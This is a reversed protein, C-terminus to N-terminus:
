GWPPLVLLGALASAANAVVSVLLSSKYGTGVILHYILAEVGVATIEGLFVSHGYTMLEPYVFWLWPLTTLNGIVTAAVIRSSSTPVGLRVKLKSLLYWAVPVEVAQTVLMSKLFLLGYHTAAM